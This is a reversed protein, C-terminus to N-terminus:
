FGYGVGALFNIYVTGFGQGPTYTTGTNLGQIIQDFVPQHPMAYGSAVSLNLNFHKGIRLTRTAEIEIGTYVENGKYQRIVKGYVPDDFNLNLTQITYAINLSAALYFVGRKNVRNIFTIGPKIIGALISYDVQLSGQTVNPSYVDTVFPNYKGIAGKLQFGIAQDPVINRYYIEYPIDDILRINIGVSIFAKNSEPETEQANAFCSILLAYMFLEAKM